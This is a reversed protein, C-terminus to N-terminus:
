ALRAECDVSMRVVAIPRGSAVDAATAFEGCTAFFVPTTATALGLSPDDAVADEVEGLLVFARAEAESTLGREIDVWCVVDISYTEHRAKRGAKITPVRQRGTTDGIWVCESNLEADAPRGYTVQVGSLAAAVLATLAAKASPVTSTTAM